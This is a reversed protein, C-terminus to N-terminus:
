PEIQQDSISTLLRPLIYLRILCQEGELCSDHCSGEAESLVAVFQLNAAVVETV